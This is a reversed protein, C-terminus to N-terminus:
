RVLLDSFGLLTTIGKLKFHEEIMGNLLYRITMYNFSNNLEFKLWFIYYHCYFYKNKKDYEAVYNDNNFYFISDPWRDNDTKIDTITNVIDNFIGEVPYCLKISLNKITKNM